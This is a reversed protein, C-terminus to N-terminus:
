RELWATKEIKGFLWSLFKFIKLVFFAKQLLYFDKMMKLRSETVCIIIIFFTSPSLGVKCKYKENAGKKM